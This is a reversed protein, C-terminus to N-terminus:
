RVGTRDRRARKLLLEVVKETTAEPSTHPRRSRDELASRDGNASLFRAVWKYGTQRSIGYARCLAAFNMRGDDQQATWEDIFRSRERVNTTETWPM